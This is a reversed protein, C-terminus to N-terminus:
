RADSNRDQGSNKRGDKSRFESAFFIKNLKNDLFLSNNKSNKIDKIKKEGIKLKHKEVWDYFLLGRSM